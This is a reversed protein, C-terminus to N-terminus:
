ESTHEESRGPAVGLQWPVQESPDSPPPARRKVRCGIRGLSRRIQCMLPLARRTRRAANSRPIIKRTACHWKQESKDTDAEAVCTQGTHETAPEAEAVCEGGSGIM